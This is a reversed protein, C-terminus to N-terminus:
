FISIPLAYDPTLFIGPYRQSLKLRILLSFLNAQNLNVYQDVSQVFNPLGDLASYDIIKLCTISDEARIFFNVTAEKGYTFVVIREPALTNDVATKYVKLFNFFKEPVEGTIVFNLIMPSQQTNKSLTIAPMLRYYDEHTIFNYKPPPLNSAEKLEVWRKDITFELRHSRGEFHWYGEEQNYLIPSHIYNDIMVTYRGDKFIIANVQTTPGELDSDYVANIKGEWNEPLNPFTEQFSKDPIVVTLEPSLEEWEDNIALALCGSTEQ